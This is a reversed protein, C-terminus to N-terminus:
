YNMQIVLSTFPRVMQNANSESLFATDLYSMEQLKLQGPAVALLESPYAVNTTPTFQNCESTSVDMLDM